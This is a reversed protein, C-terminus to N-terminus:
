FIIVKWTEEDCIKAYSKGAIDATKRAFPIVPQQQQREQKQLDNSHVQVTHRNIVWLVQVKYAVMVM